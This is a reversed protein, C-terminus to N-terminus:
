QAEPVPTTTTPPPPTTYGKRPYECIYSHQDSCKDVFWYGLAREDMVNVCKGKGEDDFTLDTFFTNFFIGFKSKIEGIKLEFKNKPIFFLFPEARNCGKSTPSIKEYNHILKKLKQIKLTKEPLTSGM